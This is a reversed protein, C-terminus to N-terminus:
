SREELARKAAEFLVPGDTGNKPSVAMGFQIREGQPLAHRLRRIMAELGRTDTNALIVLWSPEVILMIDGHHINRRVNERLEELSPCPRGSSQFAQLLPDMQLVLLGVSSQESSASAVIDQFSEALAFPDSYSPLWVTFTTRQGPDSAVDIRGHHMEILEKCVVLGLGTGRIQRGEQSGVQSFKQFLKPIDESAIGRGNDEVTIGVMGNEQVLRFTITGDDATFKMANSFLNTLVQLVRDHDAFAAPIQAVEKRVTRDQILPQYLRITADILGELDVRRRYLHMRGAEIKSIDLMNNILDALRDIDQDMTKLFDQQDTTTPGLADDIILNLGEKISTLPTRLEHSVKAVFEDKLSALEKLKTNAAQLSSAQEELRHQTNQLDELLNQMIKQQQLLEQQTLELAKNQEIVEKELRKQETVDTITGVYGKVQGSISKEAVSQGIVWTTIGDSRHFRCMSRFPENHQVLRSWDKFVRQRDEPHLAQIWDEGLAEEMSLGTIELWRPNVYICRGSADTHFIGVPVTHTLVQYRRETQQRQIETQARQVDTNHIVRATISILTTFVIMNLLVLLIIGFSGDYLGFREGTIKLWGLIPPVIIAAPLLYRILKGGATESTVITMVGQHPRASFLAVALFLFSVAADIGMGSGAIKYFAVTEYIHGLIALLAIGWVGHLCVQGMRIWRKGKADLLLLAVGVLVFSLAVQLGMRSDYLRLSEGRANHFVLRDVGLDVGFIYQMLTLLGILSVAAAALQALHYRITRTLSEPTEFSDSDKSLFLPMGMLWAAIGALIFAIATNAQMTGLYTSANELVGLGLVQGVLGSLGIFIVVLSTGQSVRSFRIQTDEFIQTVSSGQKSLADKRQTGTLTTAVPSFTGQFRLLLYIPLWATLLLSIGITIWSLWRSSFPVRSQIASVQFTWPSGAVQLTTSWRMRSPDRPLATERPVAANIGLSGSFRSKEQIPQEYLAVEIGETSYGELAVRLMDDIPVVAFAFGRLSAQTGQPRHLSPSGDYIPRVIVFGLRYDPEQALQLLGSTMPRATDYAESLAERCSTDSGLDWGIFSDYRGDSEIDHVPFYEERHSASIFKGSEDRETIEFRESRDQRRTQEYSVRDSDIVRLVMGIAQVGPARKLLGGAIGQFPAHDMEPFSAYFDGLSEVSALYTDLTRQVKVAFEESQKFFEAETRFRHLRQIISLMSLSLILGAVILIVIPFHRPIRPTM